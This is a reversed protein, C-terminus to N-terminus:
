DDNISALWDLDDPELADRAYTVGAQAMRNFRFATDAAVARDHNGQVTPISRDRIGEICARPWPNYGVVDGACVVLDVAPMDELVAEFAPKNGHLDSIAAVRM